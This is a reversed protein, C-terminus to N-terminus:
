NVGSRHQLFEILKGPCFLNEAPEWTDYIKCYGAWRILYRRDGDPSEYSDLIAEVEYFPDADNALHQRMIAARVDPHDKISTSPKSYNYDM